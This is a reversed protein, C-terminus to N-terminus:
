QWTWTESKESEKLVAVPEHSFLFFKYYKVKRTLNHMVEKGVYFLFFVGKDLTTSPRARQLWLLRGRM